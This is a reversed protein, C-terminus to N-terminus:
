YPYPNEEHLKERLSKYSSIKLLTSLIIYYIPNTFKADLKDLIVLLNM